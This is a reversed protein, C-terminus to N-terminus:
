KVTKPIVVVCVHRQSAGSGAIHQTDSSIGSTPGLRCRDGAVFLIWNKDMEDASGDPSPIAM